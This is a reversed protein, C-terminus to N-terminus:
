GLNSLFISPVAFTEWCCLGETASVSFLSASTYAWGVYLPARNPSLIRSEPQHHM